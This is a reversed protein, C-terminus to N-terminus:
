TEPSRFQRAPLIGNRLRDALVTKLFQRCRKFCASKGDTSINIKRAFILLTKFDATKKQGFQPSKVPVFVGFPRKGNRGTQTM